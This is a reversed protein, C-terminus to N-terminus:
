AAEGGRRAIRDIARAAADAMRDLLKQQRGTLQDGDPWRRLPADAAPVGGPQSTITVQVVVTRDAARGAVHGFRRSRALFDEGCVRRGCGRRHTEAPPICALGRCGALCSIRRARRPVWCLGHMSPLYVLRLVEVFNGCIAAGLQDGLGYGTSPTGRRRGQVSGVARRLRSGARSDWSLSCSATPCSTVPFGGSM